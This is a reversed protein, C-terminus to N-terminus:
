QAASAWAPRMMIVGMKCYRCWSTLGGGSPRCGHGCGQGWPTHLEPIEGSRACLCPHHRRCIPDTGSNQGRSVPCQHGLRLGDRLNLCAGASRRWARWLAHAERTVFTASAPRHRCMPQAGGRTRWMAGGVIHPIIGGNLPQATSHEACALRRIQSRLGSPGRAEGIPPLSALMFTTRRALRQSVEDTQLPRPRARPRM